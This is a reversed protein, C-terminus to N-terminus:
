WNLFNEYDWKGESSQIVIDVGSQNWQWSYNYWNLSGGVGYATNVVLPHGTQSTMDWYSKGDIASYSDFWKGVIGSYSFNRFGNSWGALDSTWPSVDMVLQSNPLIAKITDTIENMVDQAEGYSLKGGQQDDGSAYQYFDPEVQIMVKRNPMQERIAYAMEKYAAVVGGRNSRLYQAGKFCLSWWYNVNCDQLGLDRRAQGAIIYSYIFPTKDANQNEHFKTLWNTNHAKWSDLVWPGTVVQAKQPCSFSVDSSQTESAVCGWTTSSSRAFVPINLLTATIALLLLVISLYNSVRRTNPYMFLFMSLM